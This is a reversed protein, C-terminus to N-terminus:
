KQLKIRRKLSWSRVPDDHAVELVVLAEPLEQAEVQVAQAM